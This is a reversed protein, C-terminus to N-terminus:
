RGAERLAKRTTGLKQLVAAVHHEATRESLFLAAAIDKNRAGRALLDAVQRERPSLLGSPDRPGRPKSRDLARLRHRCRSADTVAGLGDLVAIAGTLAAAATEPDATGAAAARETALAAPYPRGIAQWGARARDFAAAAEAPADEALLLGEALRHEADAGPCELGATGAAHDAVLASATARDKRLLATEVATPLLDFAFPWLERRRLLRVAPALVQWAADPDAAALALRALGAASPLTLVGTADHGVARRFREAAEGAHGRAAAVVGQAAGLLGIDAVPGDPFRARYAALATDWRQWNGSTWELLVPYSSSYVVLGPLDAREGLAVAEEAWAAVRGDLGACLAIEAANSLGIVTTFLLRPNDSHRPLAAILGPIEPSVCAPLSVLRNIHVIAATEPDDIRDLIALARDMWATRDAAPADGTDMAAIVALTKAAHAPNDAELEGAATELDEVGASGGDRTRLINGIRARIEGRVAPALGPTAVIRRLAAITTDTAEATYGIAEALSRAAEGLDATPLGPLDLIQRLLTAATGQDGVALAQDIAARAHGLWRETDGLARTHHALQVLPPPDQASLLALVRRHLRTRRPGPLGDYVARGALAHSFGYADPGLEVLVSRALAEVLADTGRTDTLDASRLLLDEHAPVAVVAAAEVLALAPGSLPEIRAALVERLSRPVGLLEPREAADPEAALTILDEEAILPLGASREYLVRTLEGSPRTDLAAGALRSVAAPDLRQLALDLLTTGAPRRFAQGLLPGAQEEGRFTLVLGVGDPLGGALLLLLERTADDAWHLDEVTLVVPAAATLLARTAGLVARLQGAPGAPEEPPPPLRDALDPLLPALAGAAAGIRADPPLLPGITELADIVPGFPLPERLPHCGGLVSGVGRGRLVASAEAVLRSKGVGAEGQVLVVAPRASLAGVVAALERERGVFAFGRPGAARGGRGAADQAM